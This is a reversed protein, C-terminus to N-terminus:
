GPVEWVSWNMMFSSRTVAFLESVFKVAAASVAVPNAAPEAAKLKEYNKLLANCSRLQNDITMLM